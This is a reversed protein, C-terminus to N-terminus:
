CTEKKEKECSFCLTVHGWRRRADQWVIKDQTVSFYGPSIQKSVSHVIAFALNM